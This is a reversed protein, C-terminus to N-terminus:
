KRLISGLAQSLGAMQKGHKAADARAKAGQPLMAEAQEKTHGQRVKQFDEVKALRFTLFNDELLRRRETQLAEINGEIEELRAGVEEGAVRVASLLYAHGGGDMVITKRKKVHPGYPPWSSATVADYGETEVEAEEPKYMLRPPYKGEKVVLRM